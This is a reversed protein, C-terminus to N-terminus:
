SGFSDSLNEKIMERELQDVMQFIGDSLAPFLYYREHGLLELYGARGDDWQFM